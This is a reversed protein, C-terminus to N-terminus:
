VDIGDGAKFRITVPVCAIRGEEAHHDAYEKTSWCGMVSSDEYVNIWYTREMEEPWESILDSDSFTSDFKGDLTYDHIFWNGGEYLAAHVPFANEGDVAYIRVKRGDRTKYFKGPEIKM